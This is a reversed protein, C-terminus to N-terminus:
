AFFRGSIYISSSVAFWAGDKTSRADHAGQGITGIYAILEELSMISHQGASSRVCCLARGIAKDPATDKLCSATTVLLKGDDRSEVGITRGGKDSESFFYLFKM